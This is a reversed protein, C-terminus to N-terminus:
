RLESKSVMAILLRRLFISIRLDLHLAYDGEEFFIQERRNERQTIHHPVGPLVIRPLRAMRADYAVAVALWNLPKAGTVTIRLETVTIRIPLELKYTRLPQM